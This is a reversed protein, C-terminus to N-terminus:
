KQLAFDLVREGERQLIDGTIGVRQKRYGAAEVLMYHEEAWTTFSYRGAADTVASRYPKPGYADDSVRAGVIPLGTAADTITGRVVVTPKATTFYLMLLVGVVVLVAAPGLIRLIDKDKM